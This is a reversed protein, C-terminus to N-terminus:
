FTELLKVYSVKSPDYTVEVVEAHGTDKNCVDRYTPDETHGGMYGVSTGVVGDVHAFVKEVGWFCGAGFTAKKTVAPMPKEVQQIVEQAQECGAALAALLIWVTIKKM